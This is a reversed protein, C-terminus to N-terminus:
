ENKQEKLKDTIEKIRVAFTYLNVDSMDTANLLAIETILETHIENIADTRAELVIDEIPRNSYFVANEKIAKLEELMEAIQEFEGARKLYRGYKEMNIATGVPNAWFEKSNKDMNKITNAENKVFKIAEDIDNFM